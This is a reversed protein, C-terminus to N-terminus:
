GCSCIPQGNQSYCLQECRGNDKGCMDKPFCFGPVGIGGFQLLYIM